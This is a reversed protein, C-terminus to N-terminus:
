RRMGSESVSTRIIKCVAKVSIPAPMPKALVAKSLLASHVPIQSIKERRLSGVSLTDKLLQVDTLVEVVKDLGGLNGVLFAVLQPHRYRIGEM